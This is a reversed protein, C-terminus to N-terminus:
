TSSPKLLEALIARARMLQSQATEAVEALLELRARLEAIEDTLRDRESLLRLIVTQPSESM